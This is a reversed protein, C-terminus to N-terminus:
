LLSRLLFPGFRWFNLVSAGTHASDATKRVGQYIHIFVLVNPDEKEVFDVLEDTKLEFLEGFVKGGAKSPGTPGRNAVGTKTRADTLAMEQIQLSTLKAEFQADIDAVSDM